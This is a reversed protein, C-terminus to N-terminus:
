VSSFTLLGRCVWTAASCEIAVFCYRQEHRDSEVAASDALARDQVSIGQDQLLFAINADQLSASCDLATSKSTTSARVEVKRM